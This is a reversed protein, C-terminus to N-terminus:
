KRKCEGTKKSTPAEASDFGSSCIRLITGCQSILKEKRSETKPREHSPDEKDVSARGAKM